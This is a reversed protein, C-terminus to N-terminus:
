VPDDSGDPRAVSVKILLYFGAAMQNVANDVQRLKQPKESRSPTM